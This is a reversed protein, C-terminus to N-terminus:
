FVGYVIQWRINIVERFEAGADKLVTLSFKLNEALASFFRKKNQFFIIRLNADRSKCGFDRPKSAAFECSVYILSIKTFCGLCELFHM